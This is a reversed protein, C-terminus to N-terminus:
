LVQVSKQKTYGNKIYESWTIKTSYLIGSTKEPLTKRLCPESSRNIGRSRTPAELISSDAADNSYLSQDMEKPQNLDTKKLKQVKKDHQSCLSTKGHMMSRKYCLGHSIFTEIISTTNQLKTRTICFRHHIFIGGMVVM